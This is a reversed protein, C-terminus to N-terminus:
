MLQWLKRLNLLRILLCNLSSRVIRMIWVGSKEMEKLQKSSETM